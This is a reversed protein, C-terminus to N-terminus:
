IQARVEPELTELAPDPQAGTAAVVGAFFRRACATLVIQFIEADSLGVQRLREVADATVSAPDMAVQGAFDMISVDVPDLGARHHDALIESLAEPEYFQDRLVKTHALGCYTSGLARAAALTALEYRRADMGTRTGTILQRWGPYAEPQLAFVRMYNPVYGLEAEETAYLPSDDPTSLYSM